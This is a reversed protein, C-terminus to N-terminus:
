YNYTIVGFGGGQLGLYIRRFEVGNAEPRVAQNWGAYNGVQSFSATDM